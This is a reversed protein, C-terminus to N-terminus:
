RLTFQGVAAGMEIVNKIPGSEETGEGGGRRRKEQGKLERVEMCATSESPIGGVTCHLKEPQSFENGFPQRLM